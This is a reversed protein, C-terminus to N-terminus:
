ESHQKDLAGSEVEKVADFAEFGFCADGLGRLNGNQVLVGGGSKHCGFIVLGL